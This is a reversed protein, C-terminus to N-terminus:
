ALYDIFKSKGSGSKGKLFIPYGSKIMMETFNAKAKLDM